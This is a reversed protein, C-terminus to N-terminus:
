VPRFHNNHHWVEGLAAQHVATLHQRAGMYSVAEHAGGGRGHARSAGGRIIRLARSITNCGGWVQVWVPRPDTDDLLIGAIFEAGETRLSDEGVGSINGVRWRALLSDPHPYHPSHAKLNGYVRAYLRIYDRGWDVPKLANRGRGGLWHFESSSNVIAEVDFENCTLLFRVMSAKDDAEGDTTVIVRPREGAFLRGLGGPPMRAVLVVLLFIKKM